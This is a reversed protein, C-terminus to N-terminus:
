ENPKKKMRIQLWVEDSIRNKIQLNLTKWLKLKVEEEIIRKLNFIIQDLLCFNVPIWIREDLEDYIEKENM